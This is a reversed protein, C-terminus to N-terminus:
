AAEKFRKAVKKVPCRKDDNCGCEEVVDVMHDHFDDEISRHAWYTANEIAVKYGEMIANQVQKDLDRLTYDSLFRGVDLTVSIDYWSTTNVADTIKMLQEEVFKEVQEHIAARGFDLSDVTTFIHSLGVNKIMEDTISEIDDAARMTVQVGSLPM